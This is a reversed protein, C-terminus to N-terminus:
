DLKAPKVHNGMRIVIGDIDRVYGVKQGWEKMEPESVPVAGNEVARQFMLYMILWDVVFLLVYIMRETWFCKIEQELQLNCNECLLFFQGKYLVTKQNNKQYLGRQIKFVNIIEKDFM